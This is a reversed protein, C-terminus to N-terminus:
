DHVVGRLVWDFEHGDSRKEDGSGHGDAREQEVGRSRDHTRQYGGYHQVQRQESETDESQQQSEAEHPTDRPANSTEEGDDIEAVSRRHSTQVM